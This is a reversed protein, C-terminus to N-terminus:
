FFCFGLYIAGWKYITYARDGMDNVTRYYDNYPHCMACLQSDAQCDSEWGSRSLNAFRTGSCPHHRPRPIDQNWVRPQDLSPLCFLPGYARQATYCLRVCWSIYASFVIFRFGVLKRAVIVGLVLIPVTYDFWTAVRAVVITVFIYLYAKWCTWGDVKPVRNRRKKAFPSRWTSSWPRASSRQRRISRLVPCAPGRGTM